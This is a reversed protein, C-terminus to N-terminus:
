DAGPFLSGIRFAGENARAYDIAGVRTQSPLLVGPVGHGAEGTLGREYRKGAAVRVHLLFSERGSDDAYLPPNQRGGRFGSFARANERIQRGCGVRRCLDAGARETRVKRSDRVLQTGQTPSLRTRTPATPMLIRFVGSRKGFEQAPPCVKGWACPDLQLLHSLPSSDLSALIM